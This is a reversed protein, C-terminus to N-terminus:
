QLTHPGSWAPLLPFFVIIYFHEVSGIWRRQCWESYKLFCVENLSMSWSKASLSFVTHVNFNLEVHLNYIIIQLTYLECNMSITCIEVPAHPMSKTVEEGRKEVVGRKLFFWIFWKKKWIKMIMRKEDNSLILLRWVDHIIRTNQTWLKEVSVTYSLLYAVGNEYKAGYREGRNPFGGTKLM